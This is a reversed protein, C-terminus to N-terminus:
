VFWETDSLLRLWERHENELFHEAQALHDLTPVAKGADHELQDTLQTLARHKAGFLIASRPLEFAAFWARVGLGLIPIIAAMAVFWVALGEFLRATPEHYSGALRDFAFHAIVFGVSILFFPLSLHMWHGTQRKFDQRRRDFYDAQFKVRKFFYYATLARLLNPDPNCPDPARFESGILEDTAWSEIKEKITGADDLDAVSDIEKEFKQRWTAGDFCCLQELARFKIMRLREALHRRALWRRDFKAWLGLAIALSAAVIAVVEFAAAISIWNVFTLKIALQTIACVIAGTGAAIAARAVRRHYKQCDLAERDATRWREGLNAELWDLASKLGPFPTLVGAEPEDNMDFDARRDPLKVQSSLHEALDRLPDKALVAVSM